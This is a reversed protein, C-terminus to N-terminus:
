RTKKPRGQVQDQIESRLREAFEPDPDAHNGVNSSRSPNSRKPQFHEWADTILERIEDSDALHLSITTWGHKAWGGPLSIAPDNRALLAAQEELPLKITITQDGEDLNVVIKGQFRFDPKGHHSREEIGELSLVFARLEEISM